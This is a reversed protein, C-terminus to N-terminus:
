RQVSVVTSGYALPLPFLPIFTIPSGSGGCTANTLADIVAKLDKKTVIGDPSSGIALSLLSAGADFIPICFPRAPDGKEWGLRVIAGPAFTMVAGAIPVVLKVNKEPSIRSDDPTVDVVSGDSACKDVRAPYLGLRMLDPPAGPDKPLGLAARIVARLRDSVGAM